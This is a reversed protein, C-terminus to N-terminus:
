TTTITIENSISWVKTESDYEAGIEEVRIDNITYGEVTGTYRDFTTTIAAALTQCQEYTSSYCDVQINHKILNPVGQKSYAKIESIKNYSIAPLHGGTVNFIQNGDEDTLIDGDEDTTYSQSLATQHIRIPFIRNDVLTSVSAANSLIDYIVKGIM